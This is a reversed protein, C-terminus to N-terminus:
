EIGPLMYPVCKLSESKSLCTPKTGDVMCLSIHKTGLPKACLSRVSRCACMHSGCMYLEPLEQNSLVKLLGMTAAGVNISLALNKHVVWGLSFCHVDTGLLSLVCQAKQPRQTVLASRCVHVCVSSVLELNRTFLVRPFFTHPCRVM